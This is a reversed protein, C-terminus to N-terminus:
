HRQSVRHTRNKQTVRHSISRVRAILHSAHLVNPLEKEWPPYEKKECLTNRERVSRVSKVSCEQASNRDWLVGGAYLYWLANLSFIATLNQSIPQSLTETFGQTNQVETYIQSFYFAGEQYSLVWALRHPSKERVSSVSKVSGKQASNQAWLVGEAYLYWLANWSFIATVSQTIPQSLTETFGQTNQEETNKQSFFFVSSLRQPSKERVSSM